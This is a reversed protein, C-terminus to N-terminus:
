DKKIARYEALAAPTAPFIRPHGTHVGPSPPTPVVAYTDADKENLALLYLGPGTWDRPVDAPKEGERPPRSCDNLGVVHVKDGPKVLAGEKPYLVEKITVSPSPGSGDALADVEAVVDVQSVLFQPRSLILPGGQPTRPMTLVLYALYGLWGVLLVAVAGLRIAAPHLRRPQPTTPLTPSTMIAAAPQAVVKDTEAEM